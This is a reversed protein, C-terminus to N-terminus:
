LGFDICRQELTLKVGRSRPTVVIDSLTIRTIEFKSPDDIQYTRASIYIYIYIDREYIDLLMSAIQRQSETKKSCTLKNREAFIFSFFLFFLFSPSCFFFFLAIAGIKDVHLASRTWELSALSEGSKEGHHHHQQDSLYDRHDMRTRRRAPPAVGLTDFRPDECIKPSSREGVFLSGRTRGPERCWQETYQTAAQVAPPRCGEVSPAHFADVRHKRAKSFACTFASTGVFTREKVHKPVCVCCVCRWRARCM